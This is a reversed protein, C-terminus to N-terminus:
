VHICKSTKYIRNLQQKKKMTQLRAVIGSVQANRIYLRNCRPIVIIDRMGIAKKWLSLEVAVVPIYEINM